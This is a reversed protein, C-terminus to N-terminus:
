KGAQDSDNPVSTAVDVWTKKGGEAGIHPAAWSISYSLAARVQAEVKSGPLNPEDAFRVKDWMFYKTFAHTMHTFPFYAMFFALVLLHASLVGTAPVVPSFSVLGATFARASAFGGDYASAFLGTLFLALILVLNLYDKFSSFPKLNPDTARKYLLGISGLVGLLCAVVGLVLTLHYVLAGLASASSGIEVGALTLIGGFLIMVAWGIYLYLGFHFPFSANWLSRNEHYLARLLLIEPTMFKVVGILDHERKKTWWDAEEFYSGGYGKGKEHPIPYLEWRLHIPMRTYKIARWAAGGLLLAIAIYFAYSLYM